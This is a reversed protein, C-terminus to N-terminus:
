AQAHRERRGQAIRALGISLFYLLIMPGMVLGMNVPDITPTIMASVVAIVVVAIRWYALLQESRVLGMGALAFIVLPFEFAVGIWFMLGTVFRVYSAPRVATPIDMFNVLFDLATPMMVFYAFAMGGIFFLFAVPIAALGLLRSRRRLGPAAFLWLELTIYPLALSFGGLLAIRMVVGLPETVEIAQLSEIGGIPKTLWEILDRIFILVFATTLVLFALARFIHKRLENLHFLLDNPQQVAKAFADPLPTEEPEEEFLNRFGSLFAVLWRYITRFIGFILRFPFIIILWITRFIKRM